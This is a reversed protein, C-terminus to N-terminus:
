YRVDVTSNARATGQVTAGSVMKVSVQQGEGANSMARGESVVEFGNGKAVVRVMENAKITFAARLQDNRIPAGAPAGGILTRGIATAYDTVISPPLQSLDGTRKEIDEPGLEQGAPLARASVWYETQISIAVPLNVSWKAGKNCVVRLSSNGILRNGQALKVDLQQCVALKLRSDLRGLEFTAREGHIALQATLFQSAADSIEAHSQVAEDAM